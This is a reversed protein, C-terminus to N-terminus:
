NTIKNRRLHKILLIELNTKIIDKSITDAKENEQKNCILIWMISINKNQM